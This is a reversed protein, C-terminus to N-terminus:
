SARANARVAGAEAVLWKALVVATKMFDDIEMAEHPNHSGNANRVFLM